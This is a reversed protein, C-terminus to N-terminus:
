PDLQFPYKLGNYNQIVAKISGVSVPSEILLPVKNQDNSAWIHIRSGEEFVEGPITEPSFHLTNQVGKNRIKKTEEGMYTVQLPFTESDLCVEVPFNSGEDLRDVKMNRVSYLVSLVDHMCSELQLDTRKADKKTKGKYCVASQAEQDFEIKSYFDFNGEHVAREFYIPLLTEKDIYTHFTDRVTFFWEYSPYTKGYAKIEYFSPTENIYFDVEGASLWIFNWNYYLIYNLHEGGEFTENQMHCLDLASSDAMDFSDYDLAAPIIFMSAFLYILLKNM